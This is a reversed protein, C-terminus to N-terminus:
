SGEQQPGCLRFFFFSSSPTKRRTREVGEIIAALRHSALRISEGGRYRSVYTAAAAAALLFRKYLENSLLLRQGTPRYPSYYTLLTEGGPATCGLPGLVAGKVMMEGRKKQISTDTHLITSRTKCSLGATMGMGHPGMDLRGRVRVMPARSLSGLRSVPRAFLEM